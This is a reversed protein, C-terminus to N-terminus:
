KRNSPAADIIYMVGASRLSLPPLLRSCLLATLLKVIIGSFNLLQDLKVLTRWEVGSREPQIKRQNPSASKDSSDKSVAVTSYAYAISSECSIAIRCAPSSSPSHLSMTLPLITSAPSPFFMILRFSRHVPFVRGHAFFARGPRRRGCCPISFCLLVCIFM